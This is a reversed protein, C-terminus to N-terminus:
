RAGGPLDPMETMDVSRDESVSLACARAVALAHLSERATSPNAVDGAVIAAFTELEAAYAPAWREVFGPYPSPPAVVGEELSTIPTAADLGATVSALEASIEVRNDYGGGNSRGGVVVGLAGSAFTLTVVATDVDGVSAFAPDVVVAGTAHVRVVREGLLWPLADLDHVLQDVFIGGSGAVYEMSPPRHDMALARALYVRGYEGAAIAARARNLAPDFRRQFGVVLDVGEADALDALRVVEVPDLALPKECLVPLGAALAASAVAPHTPSPTAVLVGDVGAFLEDTSAAVDVGLEAALAAARPGDADHLVVRDVRGGSAASRAANAAHMAGIRGVGLIGLRM